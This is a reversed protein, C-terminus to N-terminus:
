ERWLGCGDSPPSSKYLTSEENNPCTCGVYSSDDVGDLLHRALLHHRWSPGSSSGVCPKCHRYAGSAKLAMDKIGGEVADEDELPPLGGGPQKSCAICTLM